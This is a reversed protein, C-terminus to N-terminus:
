VLQFHGRGVAVPKSADGQWCTMRANAMRRGSRVVQARAWCAEPKAGRLYDVTFDITRPWASSGEHVLSLLAVMELCAGVVGGHVLPIQPNGILEKRYPLQLCLGESDVRVEFGLRVAYPLRALLPTYDGSQQAQAILSHLADVEIM